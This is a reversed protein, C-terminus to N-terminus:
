QLRKLYWRYTTADKSYTGTLSEGVALQEIAHLSPHTMSNFTSWITQASGTFKTGLDACTHSYLKRVIDCM